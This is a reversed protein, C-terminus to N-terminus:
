KEKSTSECNIFWGNQDAEFDRRQREEPRRLHPQSIGAPGLHLITQKCKPRKGIGSFNKGSEGFSWWFQSEREM